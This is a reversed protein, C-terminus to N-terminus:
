YISSSDSCLFTRLLISIDLTEFFELILSERLILTWVIRLSDSDFRNESFELGFSEKLVRTCVMRSFNPIRLSTSNFHTDIFELWFFRLSNSCLLNELFEHNELFELCFSERHFRTCYIEALELRFTRSSNPDLRTLRTM